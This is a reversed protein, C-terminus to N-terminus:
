VLVLPENFRAAAFGVRVAVKIDPTGAVGGSVAGAGRRIVVRRIKRTRRPRQILRRVLVVKVVERGFLWVQVPRVWLDALLDERQHAKPELQCGPSSPRFMLLRYWARVRMPFPSRFRAPM